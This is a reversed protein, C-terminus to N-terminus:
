IAQDNGNIEPFMDTNHSPKVPSLTEPLFSLNHNAAMQGYKPKPAKKNIFNNAGADLDGTIGLIAAANPKSPTVQRNENVMNRLRQSSSRSSTRKQMM